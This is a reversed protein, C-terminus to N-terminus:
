LTIYVPQVDRSITKKVWGPIKIGIGAEPITEHIRARHCALQIVTICLKESPVLLTIAYMTYQIIKMSHAYIRTAM